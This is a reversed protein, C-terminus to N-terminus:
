IAMVIIPEHLSNGIEDSEDEPPDFQNLYGFQATHSNCMCISNGSKNLVRYCNFIRM